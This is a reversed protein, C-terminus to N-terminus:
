GTQGFREGKIGHKKAIAGFAIQTGYCDHTLTATGAIGHNDGFVARLAHPVTMEVFQAPLKIVIAVLDHCIIARGTEEIDFGLVAAPIQGFVFAPGFLRNRM